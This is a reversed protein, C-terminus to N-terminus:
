LARVIEIPFEFKFVFLLMGFFHIFLVFLLSFCLLSTDSGAESCLFMVM